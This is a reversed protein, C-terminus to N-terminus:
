SRYVFRLNEKGFVKTYGFRTAFELEAIKLKRAHGYLTRKHMVWGDDSVYWYDAPVVKDQMFNCAKYIAGDHNYTTDCYSIVLKADIKKICRSVFWSLLNKKRYSPHLCLRSLEVCEDPKFGCTDINQRILPSFICVAILIDGLYAGYAIGSRGANPLYHYKGLLLRYDDAPSLKIEIGNFDFEVQEHESLGLWYKLTEAVKDQCSFEHEWIYKLEYRDSLNNTIYSAKAKDRINAGKLSHWYEGQCEILLTPKSTIPIVCDFCYPGVICEKDIPKDPYERYYKVGLDDLISYLLTQISSVRPQVARVIAMRHKFDEDTKAFIWFKMSASKLKTKFDDSYVDDFKGRAHASQLSCSRCIPDKKSRLMVQKNRYTLGYPINCKNCRIEVISDWKSGTKPHAIMQKQLYEDSCCICNHCIFLGNRRVNVRISNVVRDIIKGCRGCAIEVRTKAPFDYIQAQEIRM